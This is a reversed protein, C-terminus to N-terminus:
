CVNDRLLDRRSSPVTSALNWHTSYDNTKFFNALIQQEQKISQIAALVMGCHCAFIRSRPELMDRGVKFLSGHWSSPETSLFYAMASFSQPPRNEPDVSSSISFNLADM